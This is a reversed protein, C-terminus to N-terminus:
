PWCDNVDVFGVINEAGYQAEMLMRADLLSDANIYVENIGIRARIYFKYRNM